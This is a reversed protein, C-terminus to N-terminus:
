NMVSGKRFRVNKQPGVITPKVNLTLSKNFLKNFADVNFRCTLNDKEAMKGQKGHSDLPAPTPEKSEEEYNYPEFDHIPYDEFVDGKDNTINSLNIAHQATMIANQISYKLYEREVRKKMMEEDFREYLVDFIEECMQWSGPVMNFGRDPTSFSLGYEKPYVKRNAENQKPAAAADAKKKSM